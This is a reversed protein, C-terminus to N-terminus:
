YDIAYISHTGSPIDSVNASTGFGALIAGLGNNWDVAGSGTSFERDSGAPIWAVGIKATGQFLYAWTGLISTNDSGTSVNEFIKQPEGLVGSVEEQYIIENENLTFYGQGLIGPGDDYDYNGFYSSGRYKAAIVSGPQNSGGHDDDANNGGTDCGVLAFILALAAFVAKALFRINQSGFLRKKLM